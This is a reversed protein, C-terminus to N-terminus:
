DLACRFRALLPTFAIALLLGVIIHVAARRVLLWHVSLSCVM